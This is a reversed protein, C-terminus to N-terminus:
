GLIKDFGAKTLTILHTDEKCVMTGTRFCLLFWLIFSIKLIKEISHKKEM